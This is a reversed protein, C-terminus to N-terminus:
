VKHYEGGPITPTTSFEGDNVSIAGLTARERLLCQGLEPTIVGSGIWSKILLQGEGCEASLRPRDNNLLQGAKSFQRESESSMASISFLDFAMQSLIPYENHHEQWWQLPKDKCVERKELKIAATSVLLANGNTKNLGLNM